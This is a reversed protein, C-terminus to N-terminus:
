CKHGGAADWLEEGRGAGEVSNSGGNGVPCVGDVEACRPEIGAVVAGL